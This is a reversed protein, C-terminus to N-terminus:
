LYLDHQSACIIAVRVRNNRDESLLQYIASMGGM